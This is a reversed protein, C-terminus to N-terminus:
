RKSLERLVNGILDRLQGEVADDSQHPGRMKKLQELMGSELLLRGLRPHLIFARDRGHSQVVAYDKVANLVKSAGKQLASIAIIPLM